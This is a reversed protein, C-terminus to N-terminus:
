SWQVWLVPKSVSDSIWARLKGPYQSPDPVPMVMTATIWLNQWSYTLQDEVFRFLCPGNLHASAVLSLVTHIGGSKEFILPLSSKYRFKQFIQRSGFLVLSVRVGESCLCLNRHNGFFTGLGHRILVWTFTLVNSIHWVMCGCTPTRNRSSSCWM